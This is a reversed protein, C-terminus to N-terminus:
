KELLLRCVLNERSQLESTHEESRESRIKEVVAVAPDDPRHVAFLVEFIPYDQDLFSRLNEELGEDEGCLPKLLSIPPTPGAPLPKVSLYRRSAVIILICYVLSGLLLVALITIIITM